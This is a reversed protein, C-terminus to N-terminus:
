RASARRNKYVTNEFRNALRIKLKVMELCDESYLLFRSLGCEAGHNLGWHSCRLATSVPAWDEYFLNM